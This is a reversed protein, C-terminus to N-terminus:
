CLSQHGLALASPYCIRRRFGRRRSVVMDYERSFRDPKGTSANTKMNSESRGPAAPPTRKWPPGAPGSKAGDRRQEECFPCYTSYNNVYGSDLSIHV